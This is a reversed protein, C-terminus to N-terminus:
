NKQAPLGMHKLGPIEYRMNASAANLRAVATDQQCKTCNRGGEKALYLADDARVLAATISEGPLRLSVGFSATFSLSAGEEEFMCREWRIRMLEAFARVEDLSGVPKVMVFEEGGLRGACGKDTLHNEFLRALAVIVKDGFGHGYTDNVKKFNDLDAIIFGIEEGEADAARLLRAARDEFGRRNLIGTLKDHTAETRFRDIMSTAYDILLLMAALIASCSVILQFSTLFSHSRYEELTQPLAEFLAFGLPMLILQVVNFLCLGFIARDIANWREGRMSFLGVGFILGNGLHAIITHARGDVGLASIVLISVITTIGLISLLWYQPRNGARLTMGIVFTVATLTYLGNTLAIYAFAPLVNRLFEFFFASAAFIYSSGIVGSSVEARNVNWIYFFGSAFLVMVLPAVLEFLSVGLNM